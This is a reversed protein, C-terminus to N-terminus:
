REAFEDCAIHDSNVFAGYVDCLVSEDTSYLEFGCEDMFDIFWSKKCNRCIRPTKGMDYLEDAQVDPYGM